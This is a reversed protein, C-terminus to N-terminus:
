NVQVFESLNLLVWCLSALGHERAHRVLRDREGERPPRGLVLWSAREVQEEVGGGAEREVRQALKEAQRFAFPDNM